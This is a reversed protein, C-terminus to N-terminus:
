RTIHHTIYFIVYSIDQSNIDNYNQTMDHSVFVLIITIYVIVVYTGDMDAANPNDEECLDDFIKEAKSENIGSM